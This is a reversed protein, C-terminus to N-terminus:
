GTASPGARWDSAELISVGPYKLHMVKFKRADKCWDRVEDPSYVRGGIENLLNLGVMLPIFESLASRGNRMEDLIYLKGGPRLSDSARRILERNTMEDFGHIINFMFVVDMGEPFSRSLFDGAVLRVRDGFGAERVLAEAYGLAGEFDMVVATGGPFRRCFELAYLGHSGGIDLLCSGLKPVSIRRFVDGLLLRALDAMGRSYIEWDEETFSKYYPELPKGHALSHEFGGLRRH